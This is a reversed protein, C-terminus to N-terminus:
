SETWRKWMVFMTHLCVMLVCMVCMFTVCSLIAAVVPTMGSSEALEQTLQGGTTVPGTITIEDEFTRAPIKLLVKHVKPVQASLSQWFLQSTASSPTTMANAIKLLADVEGPNGSTSLTLEYSIEFRVTRLMQLSRLRRGYAGNIERVELKTVQEVPIQLAEVISKKFFESVKEVGASAIVDVEVEMTSAIKTVM